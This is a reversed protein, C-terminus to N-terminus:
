ITASTVVHGAGTDDTTASAALFRWNSLLADRYGRFTARELLHSEESRLSCLKLFMQRQMREGAIATIACIPFLALAPLSLTLLEALTFYVDEFNFYLYLGGAFTGAWSLVSIAVLWVYLYFPLGLVLLTVPVTLDRLLPLEYALIEWFLWDTQCSSPCQASLSVNCLCYIEQMGQVPIYLVDTWVMACQAIEALLAVTTLTIMSFRQARPLFSFLAAAGFLVTFALPSLAYRGRNVAFMAVTFSLQLTALAVYPWRLYRFFEESHLFAVFRREMDHDEFRLRHKTWWACPLKRLGFQGHQGFSVDASLDISAASLRPTRLPPVSNHLAHDSATSEEDSGSRSRAYSEAPMATTKVNDTWTLSRQCIDAFSPRKGPDFACCCVGLESCEHLPFDFVTPFPPFKWHSALDINNAPDNSTMNLKRNATSNRVLEEIVGADSDSRVLECLIVGYAYVDGVTEDATQQQTTAFATPCLLEPSMYAPTGGIGEVSKSDDVFQVSVGFDAVRVTNEGTLLVNEPKLDRHLVKRGHLFTMGRAIECAIRRIESQWKRPPLTPLVNRLASRLNTACYEQIIFLPLYVSQPSHSGNSHRCLGLFRVINVHSLQALVSVEAALEQLQESGTRLGGYLQKAAVSQGNYTAKWVLGGGGAAIKGDLRLSAGDLEWFQRKASLQDSSPLRVMQQEKADNLWTLLRRRHFPNAEADLSEVNMGIVRNWYFVTRSAAENRLSVWLLAGSCALVSTGLEFSMHTIASSYDFVPDFTLVGIFYVELVVGALLVITNFPVVVMLVRAAVVDSIVVAKQCVWLLALPALSTDNLSVTLVSFAVTATALAFGVSAARLQYLERKHCAQAGSVAFGAVALLSLLVALTVMPGVGFFDIFVSLAIAGGALALTTVLPPVIKARRSSKAHQLFLAEVNHDEFLTMSKVFRKSFCDCPSSRWLVADFCCPACRRCRQRCVSPDTQTHAEDIDRATHMVDHPQKALFPANLSAAGTTSPM